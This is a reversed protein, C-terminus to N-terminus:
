KKLTHTDIVTGNVNLFRVTFNTETADIRLAGYENTHQFQSGAVLPYHLEDLRDGGVGCVFYPLGNTFIREYIHDHGSLVASAGWQKFPWQMPTTEERWTGHTFGSSYPAEHFYVVRWPATSAALQRKLWQAQKSDSANGDPEILDSDIAFLEM